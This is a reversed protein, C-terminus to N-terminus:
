RAEVKSIAQGIDGLELVMGFGVVAGGLIEMLLPQIPINWTGMRHAHMTPLCHAMHVLSKNMKPAATGPSAHSVM